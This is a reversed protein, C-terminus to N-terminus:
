GSTGLAASARLSQTCLTTRQWLVHEVYTRAGVSLLKEVSEDRVNLSHEEKESPIFSTRVQRLGERNLIRHEAVYFSKWCTCRAWIEEKQKPSKFHRNQWKEHLHCKRHWTQTIWQWLDWGDSKTGIINNWLACFAAVGSAKPVSFLNKVGVDRPEPLNRKSHEVFLAANSIIQQHDYSECYIQSFGGLTQSFLLKKSFCSLIRFTWKKRNLVWFRKGGCM